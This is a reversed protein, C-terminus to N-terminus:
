QEEGNRRTFEAAYPCTVFHSVYLKEDGLARTAQLDGPEGGIAETLTYVPVPKADVPMTKGNPSRVFTIQRTCRRCQPM